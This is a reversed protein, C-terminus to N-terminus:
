RAAVNLAFNGDVGGDLFFDYEPRAPNEARRTIRTPAFFLSFSTSARVALSIPFQPGYLERNFQRYIRAEFRRLNLKTDLELSQQRLTEKLEEQPNIYEFPQVRLMDGEIQDMVEESEDLRCFVTKQGTYANVGLLFLQRSTDGFRLLGDYYHRNHPLKRREDRRARM